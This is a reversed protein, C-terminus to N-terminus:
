WETQLQVPLTTPDGTLADVVSGYVWVLGGSTSVEVAAFAWDCTGTGAEAFVDNVQRWETPQVTRSVASGIANGDVEHLRITVTAAVEGLNVVGVNTRFEANGRLQLVHGVEGFALADSATLAPIMQGYTGSATQNYTRSTVLLPASSSVLLSGNVSAAPAVGLVSELVNGWDAGHGAALDLSRDAPASGSAALFSLVLQADQDSGNLLAVDTRWLTGSAGPNHAVAPVLYRWQEGAPSVTVTATVSDATGCANSVRVWYSTTADLPPTTFSASTAGAVPDATAGSSGEYWQYAFPQSGSAVVTLTAQGGVTVTTGEPQSTIAPAVCDDGVIEAPAPSGLWEWIYSTLTVPGGYLGNGGACFGRAGDVGHLQYAAMRAALEVEHPWPWLPTSTTTNWDTEGWLSGAAGIRDVIQAGAQGGSEGATALASGSEVRPLYLLGDALPDLDTRDGTGPATENYNMDNDYLVNYSHPGEVRDLGIRNGFVVNNRVAQVEGEVEGIGQGQWDGTGRVNAITNGVAAFTAEAAFALIGFSSDDNMYAANNRFAIAARDGPTCSALQGIDNLVICGTAFFNSAGNTTFFAATAIWDDDPVNGEDEVHIGDVSVCNQFVTSDAWYAVFSALHNAQNDPYFHVDRRALCRRFVNYQSRTYDEYEGVAAFSYAGRGWAACDEVLCYSSNRLWFHGFYAEESACSLVKIHHCDQARFSAGGNEVGANRLLLNEFELYAAGEWVFIPTYQDGGDIVAGLYSEGKVTIWADATGSPMGDWGGYPGSINNEEGSYVGDRLILSDGPECESLGHKVTRWPSAASGDGSSDNGAETDVYYTAAPASGVAGTLAVALALLVGLGCRSRCVHGTRM